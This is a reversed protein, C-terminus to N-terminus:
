LLDDLNVKFYCKSLKMNYIFCSLTVLDSANRHFQLLLAIFSSPMKIVDQMLEVMALSIQHGV